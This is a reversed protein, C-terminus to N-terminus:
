RRRWKRTCSCSTPRYNRRARIGSQAITKFDRIVLAAAPNLYWTSSAWFEPRGQVITERLSEEIGIVVGPSDSVDSALFAALLREALQGISATDEGKGFRVEPSEETRCKWEVWFVELLEDINAPEDVSELQCRHYHELASHIGSGVLLASSVFEPDVKDRLSVSVEIPAPSIHQAAVM